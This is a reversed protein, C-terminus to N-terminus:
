RPTAGQRDDDNGLVRSLALRARGWRLHSKVTSEPLRMLDAGETVPLDAWYHLVLAKKIAVADDVAAITTATPSRRRPKRETM